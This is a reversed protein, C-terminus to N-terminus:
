VVFATFIPEYARLHIKSTPLIVPYTQQFLAHLKEIIAHQDLRDSIVTKTTLSPYIISQNEFFKDCPMNLHPSSSTKVKRPIVALSLTIGGRKLRDGNPHLL